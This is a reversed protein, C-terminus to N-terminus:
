REVWAQGGLRASAVAWTPLAEWDGRMQVALSGTVSALKVAELPTMGKVIGSLFGACFGDGAGVTDVVNDAPYFPVGQTEGKGLIVTQDDKSKVISIARLESLRAAVIEWDSTEYLLQLEDWGPLFYDAKAALPLLAERAEEISWLKLRLNPDFSVPVGADRAIDVAREVTRRSSESIAMSIGTVHLLKSGRIYAEDLDEPQMRSAASHKRYYHVALRGAVTERFMLGTPAENSLKVRSVDVGEGRLTKVIMHGFPDNGLAGFWGVSVGLRAAGVAVNSEAGGFGQELTSARELARHEPPMFLAMSEGFTILDPSAQTM